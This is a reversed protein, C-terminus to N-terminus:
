LLEPPPTIIDSVIDIFSIGGFSYSHTNSQTLSNAENESFLTEELDDFDKESKNEKKEEETPKECCLLECDVNYFSSVTSIITPITLVVLLTIAVTKMMKM